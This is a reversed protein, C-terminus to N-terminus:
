DYMGVTLQREIGQLFKNLQMWGADPSANCTLSMKETVRTLPARPAPQYPQLARAAMQAVPAPTPAKLPKGTQADREFDFEPQKYEPRATAAVNAYKQPSDFRMKQITTAERVDTVIGGVQPPIADKPDVNSRKKLVTVVISPQNTICGSRIKYGPRVKLAGAKKFQGLNAQIVKDIDAFTAM